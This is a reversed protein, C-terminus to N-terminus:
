KPLKSLAETDLSLHLKYCMLSSYDDAELKNLKALLVDSFIAIKLLKEERLNGLHSIRYRTMTLKRTAQKTDNPM